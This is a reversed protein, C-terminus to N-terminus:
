GSCKGCVASSRTGTSPAVSDSRSPSAWGCTMLTRLRGRLRTSRGLSITYFWTAVPLRVARGTSVSSTVRAPCGTRGGSCSGRLRLSTQAGQPSPAQHRRSGRCHEDERPVRPDQQAKEQKASINEESGQVEPYSQYAEVLRGGAHVVRHVHWQPMRTRCLHQLIRGGRRGTLSACALFVVKYGSLACEASPSVTSLRSRADAFGRVARYPGATGARMPGSPAGLVRSFPGPLATDLAGAPTM